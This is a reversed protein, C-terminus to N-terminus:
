QPEKEVARGLSCEQCYVTLLTGHRCADPFPNRKTSVAPSASQGRYYSVVRYDNVAYKQKLMQACAEALGKDEWVCGGHDLVLSWLQSGGNRRELIFVAPQSPEPSAETFNKDTM